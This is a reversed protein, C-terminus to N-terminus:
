LFQVKRKKKKKVVHGLEAGAKFLAGAQAYDAEAVVEDNLLMHALVYHADRENQRLANQVIALRDWEVDFSDAVLTQAYAYGLKAAEEVAGSFCLMRPDTPDDDLIADLVDKSTRIERKACAEVLWKADPHSCLRALDFARKENRTRFNRGTLLDRIEWWQLVSADM